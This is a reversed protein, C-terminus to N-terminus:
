NDWQYEHLNERQEVLQGLISTARRDSAARKKMWYTTDYVRRVAVSHATAAQQPKTGDVLVALCSALHPDPQLVAFKMAFIETLRTRLEQRLQPVMIAAEAAILEIELDFSGQADFALQCRKVHKLHRGAQRDSAICSQAWCYRSISRSVAQRIYGGVNDLDLHKRGISEAVILWGQQYLDNFEIWWCKSAYFRAVQRVARDCTQQLQPTM